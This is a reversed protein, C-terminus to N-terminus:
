ADCLLNRYAEQFLPARHAWSHAVFAADTNAALHRRLAADEVLRRMAAALAGPNAPDVVCGVRYTEVVRRLEPLDSALVPVGAALYEFLKNPLALRHNLCTDELLVLGVDASATVALLEDPLVPPLLHVREAV